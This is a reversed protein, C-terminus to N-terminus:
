KLRARIWGYIADIPNSSPPPATVGKAALAVPNYILGQRTLTSLEIDTSMELAYFPCADVCFGCFVCRGYDVQPFYSKKNQDLKFDRKEVILKLNVSDNEISYVEADPAKDVIKSIRWGKLKLRTLSRSLYKSVLLDSRHEWLPEQNFRMLITGDDNRVSKLEPYIAMLPHAVGKRARFVLQANNISLLIEDLPESVKKNGKLVEGHTKEDLQLSVDYGYVMTIAEAINQCTLDCLSCGTCKNLYLIHRGKYGPYAIGAKPDYRYNESPLNPVREYPYKLTYPRMILHRTATFFPKVLQLILRSVM